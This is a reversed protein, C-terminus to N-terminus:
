GNEYERLKIYSSGMRNLLLYTRYKFYSSHLYKVKCLSYKELRSYTMKRLEKIRTNGACGKKQELLVGWEEKNAGQGIKM